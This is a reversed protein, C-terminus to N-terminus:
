GFIDRLILLLLAMDPNGRTILTEDFDLQSINLQRIPIRIIGPSNLRSIVPSRDQDYSDIQYGYLYTILDLVGERIATSVLTQVFGPDVYGFKM